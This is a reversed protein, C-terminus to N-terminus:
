VKHFLPLQVRCCRAAADLYGRTLNHNHERTCLCFSLCFSEYTISELFM